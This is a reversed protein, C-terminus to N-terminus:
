KSVMKLRDKSSKELKNSEQMFRIAKKWYSDRYDIKGTELADIILRGDEELNGNYRLMSPTNAQVAFRLFRIEVDSASGRVAEELLNKGKNFYSLKDFVSSVVGAYMATAVGQYAIELDSNGALKKTEEYFRRIGEDNSAAFFLKRAEELRTDAQILVFFCFLLLLRM